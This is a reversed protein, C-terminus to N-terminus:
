ALNVDLTFLLYQMQTTLDSRDKKTMKLAPLQQLVTWGTRLWVQETQRLGDTSDGEAGWDLGTRGGQDVRSFEERGLSVADHHSVGLSHLFRQYAQLVQHLDSLVAEPRVGLRHAQQAGLLGLGARYDAM